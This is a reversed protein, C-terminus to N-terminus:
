WLRIKSPMFGPMARRSVAARDLPARLVRPGVGLLLADEDLVLAVRRPTDSIRSPRRPGLGLRVAGRAARFQVIAPSVCIAVSGHRPDLSAVDKALRTTSPNM